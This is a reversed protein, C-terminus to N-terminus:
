AASIRDGQAHAPRLRQPAVCSREACGTGTAPRLDNRPMAHEKKIFILRRFIARPPAATFSAPARARWMTM